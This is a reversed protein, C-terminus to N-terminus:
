VDQMAVAIVVASWDRGREEHDALVGLRMRAQDRALPVLAHLDAVVGVRVGLHVADRRELRPQFQVGGLADDLGDGAVHGREPARRVPRVRLRGRGRVEIRDILAILEAVQEDALLYVRGVPLGADLRVLDDPVDQRVGVVAVSDQQMIRAPVRPGLRDLRQRQDDLAQLRPAVREHRDRGQDALGLGDQEGGHTGPAHRHVPRDEVQAVPDPRAERDQEQQRDRQADAPHDEHADERRDLRPAFPGPDKVRGIRGDDADDDGGVVLRLDDVLGDGGQQRRVIGARSM